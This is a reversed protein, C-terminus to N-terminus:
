GKNKKAKYPDIRKKAKQISFFMIFASFLPTFLFTIITEVWGSVTNIEFDEGLFLGFMGILFVVPNFQLIWPIADYSSSYVFSSSMGYYNVIQSFYQAIVELIGNGGCFLLIVLFTMLTAVSSKQFKSSFFIAISSLVSGFFIMLLYIGLIAFPSIGGFLYIIAYIPLMVISILLTYSFSTFLKGIIIEGPTLQSCILLDITQRQREGSIEAASANVSLLCVLFFHLISIIVFSIRGFDSLDNSTIGNVAYGVAYILLLIGGTALVPVLMAALTSGKLMRRDRGFRVLANSFPNLNSKM